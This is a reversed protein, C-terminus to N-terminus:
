FILSSFKGTMLLIGMLVLLAGGIKKVVPLYRNWKRYHQLVTEAFLSILLFPIALGVTYIAMLAAGYLATNGQSAMFLVSGLIPGVCPTWGFSFTIGLLFPRFWQNGNKGDMNIKHTQQLWPLSILEMQFLGLLVVLAGGILTVLRSNVWSGLSGAGFGLIIFAVALGATFLLPKVLAGPVASRNRPATLAAEGTIEDSNGAQVPAKRDTLISIYVPLLPFICPSFFSLLGATFVSIMSFSSIENM